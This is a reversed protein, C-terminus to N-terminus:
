AVKVDPLAFGEFLGHVQLKVKVEAIYDNCQKVAASLAKIFSEDRPVRVLAPPLEPHWSLTDVWEREAIWLQGQVQCRYAIGGDLLYGIHIPASPVKIELLGNAGVMHDPTAGASGDDLTLFGAPELVADEHLLHYYDIARKELVVGRQMFGSNADDEMPVGLLQEAVLLHAYKAMSESIKLTKPTIIKDFKSATPIGLRAMKWEASGPEVQIRKM